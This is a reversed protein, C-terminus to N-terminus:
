YVWVVDYRVISVDTKAPKIVRREFRSIDPASLEDLLQRAESLQAEFAAKRSEATNEMRNKTLVSGMGTTRVRRSKGTFVNINSLAATFVSLWKEKKRGSIEEGKMAIDRELKAIKKEIAARKSAVGATSGLRAAFTEEDEGLQSFKKTVPDYILEAQL